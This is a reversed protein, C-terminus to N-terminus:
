RAIICLIHLSSKLHATIFPQKHLLSQRALSRFLSSNCNLEIWLYKTLFPWWFNKPNFRIKQHALKSVRKRAQFTCHHIKRLVHGASWYISYPTKSSLTDKCIGETASQCRSVFEIYTFRTPQDEMSDNRDLLMRLFIALFDDILVIVPCLPLHNADCRRSEKPKPSAGRSCSCHRFTCGGTPTPRSIYRGSVIIEM